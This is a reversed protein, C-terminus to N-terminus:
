LEFFKAQPILDRRNPVPFITFHDLIQPQPLRKM